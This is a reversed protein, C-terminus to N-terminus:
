PALFVIHPNRPHLLGRYSLITSILYLAGGSHSALSVYPVRLHALLASVTALWTALRSRLPVATSGGLGPRDITLIRIKLRTAIFHLRLLSYRGGM